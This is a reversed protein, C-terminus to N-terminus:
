LGTLNRGSNKLTFSEGGDAFKGTETHKYLWCGNPLNLLKQGDFGKAILYELGTKDGQRMAFIETFQKRVGNHLANMSQAIAFVDIKYTRGVGLLALFDDPANRPDILLDLEDM